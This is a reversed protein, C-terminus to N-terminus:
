FSSKLSFTHIRELSENSNARQKSNISENLDKFSRIRLKAISGRPSEFKGKDSQNEVMSSKSSHSKRGKYIM